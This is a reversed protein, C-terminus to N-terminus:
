GGTLGRVPPSSVLFSMLRPAPSLIYGGTLGRVPPSSVLFSMLGRLPRCFALGRHTRSGPTFVCSLVHARPAPSLIYGGTLGRVPPSPVLFSMLGRLPRCFALGRHTWSGPTFVCSLVHAASRAVSHLGRHPRSVPTFFWSLAHARPAPSLVSAGPSDAFRPHLCLFPCSGASRAVSHLGRHTRSGPTFACSLVHARAAPSLVSAGPSDV